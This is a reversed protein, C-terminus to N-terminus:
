RRTKPKKRQKWPPVNGERVKQLFRLEDPCLDSENLAQTPKNVLGLLYDSTAKLHASLRSLEHKTPQESGTEIRLYREPEMGVKAALAEPSLGKAMRQQALRDGDVSM